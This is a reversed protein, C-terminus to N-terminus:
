LLFSLEYFMQIQFGIPNIDLLALPSYSVLPICLIKSQTGAWLCRASWCAEPSIWELGLWGLAVESHELAGWSYSPRYLSWIWDNLWPLGLAAYELVSWITETGPGTWRGFSGLVYRRCLFCEQM